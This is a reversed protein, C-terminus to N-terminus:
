RSYRGLVTLPQPPVPAGAWEAVRTRFALTAPIDLLPNANSDVLRLSLLFEAGDGVRAATYHIGTPAAEEVATFLKKIADEVEPIREADTRFRVIQVSM